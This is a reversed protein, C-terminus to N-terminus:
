KEDLDHEKKKNSFIKMGFTKIKRWYLKIFFLGGFIGGLLLQLFFSGTYLDLYALSSQPFIILITSIYFSIVTLKKIKM